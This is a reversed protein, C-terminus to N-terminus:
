TLSLKERQNFSTGFLSQVTLYIPIKVKPILSKPIKGETHLDNYPANLKTFACYLFTNIIIFRHSFM